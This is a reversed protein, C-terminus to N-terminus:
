QRRLAEPMEPMEYPEPTLHENDPLASVDPAHAEQPYNLAKSVLRWKWRDKEGVPGDPKSEVIGSKARRITAWSVGAATALRKVDNAPMPGKALTDTLFAVAEDIATGEEANCVAALAADASITVPASEWCIQSTPIEIDDLTVTYGGIRYALGDGMAAINMKSPIFLRRGEDDADPIVAFATRAQNVFAVSGIVRSNADGGGKSHHNNCVVACGARTALQGLPELVSRVDANKHSDVKGLYSSVPDIIILRVDSIKEIESELRKLDAQLNFSRRLGNEKERVAAILFVKSMDANAAALRPKLTDDAADEAALIITSGIADNPKGDPWNAGTSTRAAWDCLITSKGLGGNGALVTVKGLAVRGPWLWEIPKARVDAMCTVDLGATWNEAQTDRTIALADLEQDTATRIDIM